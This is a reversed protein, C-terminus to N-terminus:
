DAVDPANRVDDELWRYPDAVTEGFRTEVLDVRRTEPYRIPAMDEAQLSATLLMGAALALTGTIRIM